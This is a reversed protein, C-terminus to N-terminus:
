ADARPIFIRLGRRGRRYNGQEDRPIWARGSALAALLRLSNGAALAAEVEPHNHEPFAVRNLQSRREARDLGFHVVREWLRRRSRIERWAVVTLAASGKSRLLAVLERHLHAMPHSAVEAATKM